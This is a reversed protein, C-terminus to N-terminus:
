RRPELHTELAARLRSRARHLLVRQHADSLELTQCVTEASLQEIDRLWVVAQLNAPLERIAAFLHETLQRDSVLRDPAPFASPTQVWHGKANFRGEEVAPEAFPQERQDRSQRKRALHAVIGYVWTSLKSRGEYNPLGRLVAEWADQVVEDATAASAVYTRAVAFMCPRCQRSLAVFAAEDGARIRDAIARDAVFPDHSM